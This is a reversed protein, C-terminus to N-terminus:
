GYASPGEIHLKGDRALAVVEMANLAVKRDTFELTLILRDGDDERCDVVGGLKKAEEILRNELAPDPRMYVEFMWTGM